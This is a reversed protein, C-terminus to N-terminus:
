LVPRAGMIDTGVRVLTSGEAIAIELDGSMGASYVPAGLVRDSIREVLQRGRAFVAAPDAGLPPVTMLGRLELNDAEAAADALQDIDAEVAGGRQPDGDASFQLLVPLASDRDGRELALGAGRDLANLLKLSDVTHVAAAWRAVSNAKKTQVQGVMHFQLGTEALQAHKDRAEQERNEGVATVGLRALVRLDEAVHFKTIPLLDAGGAVAIRQRVRALNRAIEQGRPGLDTSGGPLEDPARHESTQETM